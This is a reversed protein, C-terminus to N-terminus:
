LPRNYESTLNTLRDYSEFRPRGRRKEEVLTSGAAGEAELAAAREALSRGPRGASLLM